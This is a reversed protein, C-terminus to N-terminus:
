ESFYDLTTQIQEDTLERIAEEDFYLPAQIWNRNSESANDARLKYTPINEDLHSFM